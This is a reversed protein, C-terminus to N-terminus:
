FLIRKGWQIPELSYNQRKPQCQRSSKCGGRNSTHVHFNHLPSYSLFRRLLTTRPTISDPALVHGWCACMYEQAGICLVPGSSSSGQVSGIAHHIALVIASINNLLRSLTHNVLIEM